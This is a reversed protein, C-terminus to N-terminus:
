RKQLKLHDRAWFREKKAEKKVFELHDRAWIREKKAKKVFNLRGRGPFTQNKISDVHGGQVEFPMM